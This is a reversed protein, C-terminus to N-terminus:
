IVIHDSAFCYVIFYCLAFYTFLLVISYLSPYNKLMKILRPGWCLRRKVPLSFGYRIDREDAHFVPPKLQNNERMFIRPMIYFLHCLLVFCITFCFSPFGILCEILLLFLPVKHLVGCGETKTLNRSEFKCHLFWRICPVFLSSLQIWLGGVFQSTTDYQSRTVNFGIFYQFPDCNNHSCLIYRGECIVTILKQIIFLDNCPRKSTHFKEEPSSIEYKRSTM